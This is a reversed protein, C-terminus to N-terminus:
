NIFATKTIFSPFLVTLVIILYFNCYIVGNVGKMCECSDLANKILINVTNKSRFAGAELFAFVTQMVSVFCPKKDVTICRIDGSIDSMNIDARSM